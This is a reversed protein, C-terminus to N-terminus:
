GVVLEDYQPHKALWARAFPCHPTIGWRQERAFEAAYRVLHSGLGRGGFDPHIITHEFTVVDGDLLYDIYGAKQGDVWIEFERGAENHRFEESM